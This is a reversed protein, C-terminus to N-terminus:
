ALEKPQMTVLLTVTMEPTDAIVGDDGAVQAPLVTVNVLAVVPPAHLLPLLATAETPVLPMTVPTVAPVAVM